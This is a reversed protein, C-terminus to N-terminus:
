EWGLTFPLLFAQWVGPGGRYVCEEGEGVCVEVGVVECVRRWGGGSQSPHTSVLSPCFGHPCASDPLTRPSPVSGVASQSHGSACGVCLLFWYHYSGPWRHM